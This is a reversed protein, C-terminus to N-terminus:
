RLRLEIEDLNSWFEAPIAAGADRISRSFNERSPRTLLNSWSDPYVHRMIFLVFSMVGMKPASIRVENDLGIHVHAAPHFGPKYGRPDYDFRIPTLNPRLSATELVQTYEPYYAKRNPPSDSIGLGGLYDAFTPVDLPCPMYSYSYSAGEAFLFLSHDALRVHFWGKDTAMRWREVYGISRLESVVDRSLVFHDAGYGAVPISAERFLSQLMQKYIM